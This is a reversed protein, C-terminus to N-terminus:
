LGGEPLGLRDLWLSCGVAPVPSPAGLHSMLADYRGGGGIPRMDAGGARRLEFVFGTYYDLNRVFGGSFRLKDVAVGRLALHGNRAEFRDLAADLDLGADRALLRVAAAAEDADGAIALYASLVARSRADLGATRQSAKALFREAIEGATRGGVHNIGAIALVDEVFARAAKPDQGELAALLGAHATPGGESSGPEALMQAGRGAVLARLLRRREGGPVGLGELLAAALEMDGIRIAPDPVGLAAVAQLALALIEADAAERDEHGIAEIGAQAFEGVEGPRFRFVPGRYSYRAPGAAIPGALHARCVPITYEPRLCLDNGDADSTLFMRKRLDEGSLDLFVDAPQLIPPELRPFGAEAFLADLRRAWGAEAMDDHGTM